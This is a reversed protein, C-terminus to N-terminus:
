RVREPAIAFEYRDLDETPVDACANWCAAIRRALEDGVDDIQHIRTVFESEGIRQDAYISFTRYSGGEGPVKREEVRLRIKALDTM